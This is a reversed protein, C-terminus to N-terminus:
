KGCRVRLDTGGRCRAMRVETGGIRCKVPLWDTGIVPPIFPVQPLFVQPNLAQGTGSAAGAGTSGKVSAGLAQGSGTAVGAGVGRGPNLAQGTGSAAGANVKEAASTNYAAGTGAAVGAVVAVTKLAQANFAQGVGSAAGANVKEDVTPDLAQGVGAAAGAPVTVDATGGRSRIIIVNRPQGRGLRAM